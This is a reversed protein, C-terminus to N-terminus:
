CGGVVRKQEKKTPGTSKYNKMIEPLELKAKIRFRNTYEEEITKPNENPQYNLINKKFSNLGGSLIRIHKFGLESAVFAMKRETFEDDAIFVNIKHKINLLKGSEKEFL